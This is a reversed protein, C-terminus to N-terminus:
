RGISSRLDRARGFLEDLGAADEERLCRGLQQMHEIHLDIFKLLNERNQLCINRWLKPTSMAIRTTDVFGPGAFRLSEGNEDGATNVLAYAVLHPLHSVLGYVRDHEDAAMYEVTSGIAKWLSVVRERVEESVADDQIVICLAGEFLGEESANIGAREGGAIPHCGVYNVGEPMMAQLEHYLEGKVSGVDLVLAGPQLSASINEMLGRFTEVPTALVVLDANKCARAPDLEYSDIYGLSLAKKLNNENRGYGAIHTCLSHKKLARAVSAGLLGVGLITVREFGM